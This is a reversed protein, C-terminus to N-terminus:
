IEKIEYDKYREKRINKMGSRPWPFTYLTNNKSENNNIYRASLLNATAKNRTRFIVLSVWKHYGYYYIIEIIRYYIM